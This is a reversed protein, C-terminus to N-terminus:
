HMVKIAYFNAWFNHAVGTIKLFSGLTFLRGNPSFEGFRTVRNIVQDQEFIIALTKTLDDLKSQLAANRKELRFLLSWILKHCFDGL